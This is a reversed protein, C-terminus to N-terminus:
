GIVHTACPSIVVPALTKVCKGPLLFTRYWFRLEDNYKTFLHKVKQIFGDFKLFHFRLDTYNIRKTSVKKQSPLNQAKGTCYCGHVCLYCSKSQELTLFQSLIGSLILYTLKVYIKKNKFSSFVDFHVEKDNIHRFPLFKNKNPPISFYEQM